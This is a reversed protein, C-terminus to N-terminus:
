RLCTCPIVRTSLIIDFLNKLLLGDQVRFLTNQPTCPRVLCFLERSLVYPAFWLRDFKHILNEIARTDVNIIERGLFYAYPERIDLLNIASGCDGFLAAVAAQALDIPGQPPV